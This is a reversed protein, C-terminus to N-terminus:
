IYIYIYTVRIQVPRFLTPGFNREISFHATGDADVGIVKISAGLVDNFYVPYALKAPNTDLRPYERELKAEVVIREGPPSWNIYDFQDKKGQHYVELELEVKQKEPVFKRYRLKVVDDDHMQTFHTVHFPVPTIAVPVQTQQEKAGALFVKDLKSDGDTDMFCFRVIAEFKQGIGGLLAGAVASRGRQDRGCYYHGNGGVITNTRDPAVVPTLADGVGIEDSFRDIAVKIPQDAFVQETNMIRGTMLVDGPKAAFPEHAKISVDPFLTEPMPYVPMKSAGAALLLPLAAILGAAKSWGIRM